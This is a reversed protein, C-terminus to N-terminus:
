SSRRGPLPIAMTELNLAKYGSQHVMCSVPCRLNEGAKEETIDQFTNGIRRSEPGGIRFAYFSYWKKDPAAYRELRVSKGTLAVEGFIDFWYREYDPSIETLRKGTYDQGVIQTAACNAEVYLLDVPHNDADFLVEILFFGEDISNFLTRYKEESRQPAEQARKHETINSFVIAVHGDDTRWAHVDYYYDLAKSYESLREPKGTTLVRALMQFWYDEVFFICALQPIFQLNDM